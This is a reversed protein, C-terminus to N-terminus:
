HSGRFGTIQTRAMTSPVWGQDDYRLSVFSILCQRTLKKYEYMKREQEAQQNIKLSQRLVYISELFDIRLLAKWNNDLYTKIGTTYSSNM